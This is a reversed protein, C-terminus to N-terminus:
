GHEQTFSGARRPINGRRLFGGTQAPVIVTRCGNTTLFSLILIEVMQSDLSQAGILISIDPYTLTVRAYWCELNIILSTFKQSHHGYRFKLSDSTKSEAKQISHKCVIVSRHVVWLNIKQIELEGPSRNSLEGILAQM